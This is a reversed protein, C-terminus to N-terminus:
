QRSKMIKNYVEDTNGNSGSTAVASSNTTPFNTDSGLEIIRGQLAITYDRLRLNEAKLDEITQKLGPVEAAQAELDKIYREKRQRFAKQASRNQAARRTNSVPRKLSAEENGPSKDDVPTAIIANGLYSEDIGGGGLPLQMGTLNSASENVGSNGTSNTGRTGNVETVQRSSANEMRNTEGAKGTPEGILQQNQFDFNSSM